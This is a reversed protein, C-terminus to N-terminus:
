LLEMANSMSGLLKMSFIAGACCFESASDEDSSVDM